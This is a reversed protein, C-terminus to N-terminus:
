QRTRDFYEKNHMASVDGPKLELALSNFLEAKERRGLRDMCVCLQICPIYGYCEPMVFGGRSDERKCTLALEYWFVARDMAQRDLFHKGLECCLEARPCDYSLSQLLARLAKEAEGVAYRCYALYRCAEIKNEVWGMDGDLFEELVNAADGYRNHYYLERGYYFKQRPDLEVGKQCLGEFIRLNRKSDTTKIKKHSVACDWYVTNGVPEIVEHVAGKWKLGAERRVLRERFYSFSPKAYEDFATHYKMMVINVDTSLEKKNEIFAAKEEEDMVDDADLWMCYDKTALSFAYNRAASFDDIWEFDELIDAYASAIEKTSDSSGTDVIVIEDFLEAVSKLCRGLVEEEDRVIMCLSVTVM